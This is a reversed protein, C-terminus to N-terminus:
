AQAGKRTLNSFLGSGANRGAFGLGAFGILVMIWTSAEPTPPARGVVDAAFSSGDFRYLESSLWPGDAGGSLVAWSHSGNEDLTRESAVVWHMFLGSADPELREVMVMGGLGLPRGVADSTKEASRDATNSTLVDSRRVVFTGFAPGCFIACSSGGGFAPWATPHEFENSAVPADAFGYSSASVERDRAEAATALGTFAAAAAMAIAITTRVFGNKAVRADFGNLTDFNHSV